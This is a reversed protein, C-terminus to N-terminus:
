GCSYRPGVHAIDVDAMHEGYAEAALFHERRGSHLFLCWLANVQDNAENNYARSCHKM